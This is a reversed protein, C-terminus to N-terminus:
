AQPLRPPSPRCFIANQHSNAAVRRLLQHMLPRGALAFLPHALLPLPPLPFSHPSTTAITLPRRPPFIENTAMTESFIPLPSALSPLLRLFCFRGSQPLLQIRCIGRGAIFQSDQLTSRIECPDPVTGTASHRRAKALAANERTEELRKYASCM